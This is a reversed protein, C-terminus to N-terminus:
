AVGLVGPTVPLLVPPFSPSSGISALRCITASRGSRSKWSAATIWSSNAAPEIGRGNELELANTRYAALLVAANGDLRKRM